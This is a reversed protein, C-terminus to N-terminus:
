FNHIPTCTDEKGRFRIQYEEELERLKKGSALYDGLKKCLDKRADILLQELNKIHQKEEDLVIKTLAYEINARELDTLEQDKIRAALSEAINM